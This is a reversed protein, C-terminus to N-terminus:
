HNLLWENRTAQRMADIEVVQIWPQSVTESISLNLEFSDIFLHIPVLVQDLRMEDLHNFMLFNDVM